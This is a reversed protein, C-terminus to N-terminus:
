STGKANVIFSTISLLEKVVLAKRQTESTISLRSIITPPIENGQCTLPIALTRMTVINLTVHLSFETGHVERLRENRDSLGKTYTIIIEFRIVTLTLIKVPAARRQAKEMQKQTPIIFPLRPRCM